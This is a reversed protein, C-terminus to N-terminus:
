SNTAFDNSNNNLKNVAIIRANFSDITSQIRNILNLEMSDLSNSEYDETQISKHNNSNNINMNMNNIYKTPTNNYLSQQKKLLEIQAAVYVPDDMPGHYPISDSYSKNKDQM